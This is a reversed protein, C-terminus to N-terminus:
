DQKDLPRGAVVIDHTPSTPTPPGEDEEPPLFPVDEDGEEEAPRRHRRAIIARDLTFSGGGGTAFLLSALGLVLVLEFGDPATLGQDYHVFAFAGAMDLFLLTGAIPMAVGAILCVGGLLEVFTAYVAAATPLPVNMAEFSAGTATVGEEIKKWGHAIFVVGVGIRALLAVLDYIPSRQM